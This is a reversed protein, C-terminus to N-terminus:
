NLDLDLDLDLDFEAKARVEAEVMTVCRTGATFLFFELFLTKLV